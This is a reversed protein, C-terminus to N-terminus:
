SYAIADCCHNIPALEAGLTVDQHDKKTAPHAFLAWPALRDLSRARAFLLTGYDM